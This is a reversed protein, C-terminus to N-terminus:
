ARVVAGRVVASFSKREEASRVERGFLAPRFCVHLCYSLPLRCNAKIKGRVPFASRTDALQELNPRLRRDRFRDKRISHV